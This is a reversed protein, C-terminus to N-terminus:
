WGEAKRLMDIELTMPDSRTYTNYYHKKFFKSQESTFESIHLGLRTQLLKNVDTHDVTKWESYIEGLHYFDQVETYDWETLMTRYTGYRAGAICNDGYEADAGINHWISLRDFNSRHVMENFELLSPKTGKKLCMKVGERFGARWAHFADGNPHTTGYVNNMALYKPDYCFEVENEDAGDSNEHTKMSNVFNRTWCSIGGNGYMLGNVANVAKWRYVCDEHEPKIDLTIDFFEPYPMNDGDILVFRETDSASAAAKHAADSGEVGDVRKAWPVINQIKAWFEEKKPEDYSLYICDLDAVDIKSM